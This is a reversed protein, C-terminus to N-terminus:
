RGRKEAFDPDPRETFYTKEQYWRLGEAELIRELHSKSVAIQGHQALYDALRRLSWYGYAQGLQEPKTRAVAIMQGRQAETYDARRGRGARDKLGALGHANFRKVWLTVTDQSCSLTRAIQGTSQGQARLLLMTAREADRKAVTRARSRRNLEDQEDETLPRLAIIKPM